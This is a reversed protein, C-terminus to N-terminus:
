DDRIMVVGVILVMSLCPLSLLFYQMSTIPSFFYNEIWRRSNKASIGTIFSLNVLSFCFNILM